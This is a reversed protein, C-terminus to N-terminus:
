RPHAAEESEDDVGGEIAVAFTNLFVHDSDFYESLGGVVIRLGIRGNAGFGSLQAGSERAVVVAIATFVRYDDRNRPPCIHRLELNAVRRKNGRTWWTCGRRRGM